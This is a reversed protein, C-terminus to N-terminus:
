GPLAVTLLNNLTHCVLPAWLSKSCQFLAAFLLGYAFMLGLALALAAGSKEGSIAWYPLHALAFLAASVPAAWWGNALQRLVRFVVGRFLVEEAFPATLISNLWTAADAPLQPHLATGQRQVLTLLALGAFGTLGTLIGRRVHQRLGLREWVPPGETFRVWLVAPLVWLALRVAARVVGDNLAPHRTLLFAWATWVTFFAALFWGLRALAPQRPANMAM